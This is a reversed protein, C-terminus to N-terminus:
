TKNEDGGTFDVAYVSARQLEMEITMGGRRAEPLTKRGNWQVPHALADGVIPDCDEFSYGDPVDGQADRLQVRVRGTVAANLSIRDCPTRFVPSALRGPNANENEVAMFRDRPARALGLQRRGVKHGQNYGGYYFLMESGASVPASAWTMAHDWGDRDHNRDLFKGELRTWNDGDRSIALETWGIGEVPGDPDAPLDDRLIRPFGIYLGNRHVFSMNYYETMDHKDDPTLIVRPQTWHVFDESELQGVIRRIPGTRSRGVYGDEPQGVMVHIMVYRDRAADRFVEVGDVYVQRGDSWDGGYSWAYPVVPNEAAPTWHLGDPSFMAWVGDKETVGKYTILMFRRDPDTFDPGNDVVSMPYGTGGLPRTPLLNNDDWGELEVLGLEPLVWHLGDSSEAYAHYVGADSYLGKGDPTEIRLAYWMRFRGGPGGTPSQPQRLVTFWPQMRLHHKTHPHIPDPHRLPRLITRKLGTMSAVFYDDLFLQPGASLSPTPAQKTM